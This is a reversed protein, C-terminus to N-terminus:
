RSRLLPYPNQAGSKYMGFHLHPPTGEANGTNGVYGLVTDKTVEKGFEIGEAVADLHAYYYRVGGRGMVFVFNGGLTSTGTRIVYGYTASFVPTGRSAFIDVGEHIRGGARAAGWTDVVTDRDVDLVPMLLETDPEQSRLRALHYPLAVNEAFDHLMFVFRERYPAFWQTQYIAGLLGLAILLTLVVRLFSQFILRM